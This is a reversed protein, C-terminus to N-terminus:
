LAGTHRHLVGTQDASLVQQHTCNDFSPCVPFPYMNNDGLATDCSDLDGCEDTDSLADWAYPVYRQDYDVPHFLGMYHGVEHALTEGYIRIDDDSFVGDGGANTVWSIAVASHDNAVLTGPIGGAEGYIDYTGGVTEGIVVTFDDDTGALSIAEIEPGGDTMSPLAASVDTATDYAVTLSLGYAGWIERWVEVAAETGATVEADADLGDVYVIRANVNGVNLNDDQKVQTVIDVQEGKMYYGDYDIVAVDVTWTGSFLQTDDDRVPWNLHMESSLPLIGATLHNDGYYWDEWHLAADGDPDLAQETSVYLGDRAEATVLFAGASGNVNIDLSAVGPSVTTTTYRCTQLGDVDTCDGENSANKGDTECGLAPLLVLLPLVRARTPATSM